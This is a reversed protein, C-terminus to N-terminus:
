AEKGRMAEQEGAIGSFACVRSEHEMNEEM